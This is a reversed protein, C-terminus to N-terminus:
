KRTSPVHVGGGGGGGMLGGAGGGIGHLATARARLLPAGQVEPWHPMKTDKRCCTPELHAHAHSPAPESPMYVSRMRMHTDAGVPM